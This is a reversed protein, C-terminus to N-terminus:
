SFAYSVVFIACGVPQAIKKHRTHEWEAGCAAFDARKIGLLSDMEDAANEYASSQHYVLIYDAGKLKGVAGIGCVADM